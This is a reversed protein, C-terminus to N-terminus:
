LPHVSTARLGEPGRQAEYEVRQGEQLADLGGHEIASLNVFVNASDDDPTIFGYGQVANFSTVIGTAM